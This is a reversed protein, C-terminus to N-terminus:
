AARREVRARRLARDRIPNDADLVKAEDDATWGLAARCLAAGRASREANTPDFVHEGTYHDSM